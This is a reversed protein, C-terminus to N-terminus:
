TEFVDLVTPSSRGGDVNPRPTSTGGTSATETSNATSQCVSASLPSEPRECRAGLRPPRVTSFVVQVVGTFNLAEVQPQAVLDADHAAAVDNRLDFGAEASGLLVVEGASGM